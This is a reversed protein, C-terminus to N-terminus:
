KTIELLEVEFILTSYPPISGNDTGGYALDQPIFLKFKTGVPMLALGEQWGAIVANLPFEIPEGRDVSSDFVTGDILTGHYHVKVTDDITPKKARKKGKKLIQYQLGSPTTVVGKKTKNAALFDEGVKELEAQMKAETAQIEEQKAKVQPNSTFIRQANELDLVPQEVLVSEFGQQIDRMDIDAVNLGNQTVGPGAMTGFAESLRPDLISGLSAPNQEKEQMLIFADQFIRQATTDSMTPSGKAAAEFGKIFDSSKFANLNFGIQQLNSGLLVGIALGTSDKQAKAASCFTALLVFFLCFRALKLM